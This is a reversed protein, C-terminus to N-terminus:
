ILLRSSNFFALFKYRFGQLKIEYHKKIEEKAKLALDSAIKKADLRENERKEKLLQNLKDEILAIKSEYKHKINDATVKESVRHKAALVKLEEKQHNQLRQVENLHAEEKSKLEQDFVRNKKDIEINIGEFKSSLDRNSIELSSIGKLLINIIRRSSKRIAFFEDILQIERPKRLGSTRIHHIFDQQSSELKDIDDRISNYFTSEISDLETNMPLDM